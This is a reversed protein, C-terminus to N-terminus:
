NYIPPSSATLQWHHGTSPPTSTWSTMSTIHNDPSFATSRVCCASADNVTAATTPSPRTEINWVAWRTRTRCSARCSIRTTSRTRPLWRPRVTRRRATPVSHSVATWAVLRRRPRRPRRSPGAASTVPAPPCATRCRAAGRWPRWWGASWITTRCSAFEVLRCRLNRGVCHAHLSEQLTLCADNCRCYPCLHMFARKYRWLEVWSLQVRSVWNFLTCGLWDDKKNIVDSGVFQTLQTVVNMSLHCNNVSHVHRCSSTTLNLQTPTPTPVSICVCSISCGTEVSWRWVLRREAVFESSNTGRVRRRNSSRVKLKAAGRRQFARGVSMLKALQWEVLM